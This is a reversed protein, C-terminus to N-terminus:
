VAILSRLTSSTFQNGLWRAEFVNLEIFFPQLVLTTTTGEAVRAIRLYRAYFECKGFQLLLTQENLNPLIIYNTSIISMGCLSPTRGGEKESFSIFEAAAM